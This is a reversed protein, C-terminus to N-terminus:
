YPSFLPSWAVGELGAVRIAKPILDHFGLYYCDMRTDKIPNLGPERALFLLGHECVDFDETTGDGGYWAFPAMMGTGKLANIPDSGMEWGGNRRTLFCYFISNREPKIYEDWYRVFMSTYSMASSRPKKTTTPNHLQGSKDAKGVM